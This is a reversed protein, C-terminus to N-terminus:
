VEIGGADDKVFHEGAGGGEPSFVGEGDEPLVDFGWHGWKRLGRGVHGFWQELDQRLEEGLLGCLTGGTRGCDGVEEVGEQGGRAFHFLGHAGEDSGGTFLEGGGGGAFCGGRFRLGCGGVGRGGRGGGGGAVRRTM